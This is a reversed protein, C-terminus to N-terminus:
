QSCPIQTRSSQEITEVLRQALFIETKQLSEWTFGGIHPTIILNKHDRAYKILPRHPDPLAHEHHLVDLAAGSLKGLSLADLLADEDVLEGRATNILRAGDKMAALEPSAFMGRTEESLNVHLTVIDAEALLQPLPLFRVREDRITTGRREDHQTALVEADFAQLYRAVIQGIRGYGVIGVKKEHLDHGKFPYRDWGGHRVSNVAEPLRRLLALMLSLTLEATARISSLFDTEGHLSLVKIGREAARECDIHNLGTTNTAIIKLRLAADIIEADINNRLRVWLVDFDGAADLLGARDLDAATVEAHRRLLALAAPSFDQSEAILIKM